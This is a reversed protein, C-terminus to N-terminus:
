ASPPWILGSELPVMVKRFRDDDVRQRIFRDITTHEVAYTRQFNHWIADCPREGNPVGTEEPHSDHRADEHTSTCIYRRLLEIIKKEHTNM